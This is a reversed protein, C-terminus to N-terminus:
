EAIALERLRRFYSCGVTERLMDENKNLWQPNPTSMRSSVDEIEVCVEIEILKGEAEEELPASSSAVVVAGGSDEDTRSTLRWADIRSIVNMEAANGDQKGNAARRHARPIEDLTGSETSNPARADADSRAITEMDNRFTPHAVISTTATLTLATSSPLLCAVHSEELARFGHRDELQKGINLIYPKSAEYAAQYFDAERIM